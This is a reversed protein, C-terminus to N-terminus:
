RKSTEIIKVDNGVQIARTVITSPDGNDAIWVYCMNGFQRTEIVIFDNSEVSLTVKDLLEVYTIFCGKLSKM